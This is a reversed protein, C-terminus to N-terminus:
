WALAATTAMSPDIASMRSTGGARAVTGRRRAAHPDGTRSRRYATPLAVGM